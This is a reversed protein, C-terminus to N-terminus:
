EEEKPEDDLRPQMNRHISIETKEEVTDLNLIQMLERMKIPDGKVTLSEIDALIQEGDVLIGTFRVKLETKNGSSISSLEEKISKVNIKGAIENVM